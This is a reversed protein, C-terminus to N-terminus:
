VGASNSRLRSCSLTTRWAASCPSSSSGSGAQVRIATVFERERRTVATRHRGKALGAGCGSRRAGRRAPARRGRAPRRPSRRASGCAAAAPAGGRAAPPARPPRAAAPAAPPRSPAAARRRPARAAATATGSRGCCPASRAARSRSRSRRAARPPASRRSAPSRRARAGRPPAGSAPTAPRAARGGARPASGSPSRAAVRLLLDRAVEPQRVVRQALEHVSRAHAHSGRRGRQRRHRQDGGAADARRSAADSTSRIVLEDRATARSAPLCAGHGDQRCRWRPGPSRRDGRWRGAPRPGTAAAAAVLCRLPVLLAGRRWAAPGVGAGTTGTDVAPSSRRAGRCRGRSSPVSPCPRLASGLVAVRRALAVVGLGARAPREPEPSSSGLLPSDLGDPEPWLRDPPSSSELEPEEPDASSSTRRRRGTRARSAPSPRGLRRPGRLGLRVVVAGARGAAAVIGLRARRRLGVLVSRLASATLPTVAASLGRGGLLVDTLFSKM